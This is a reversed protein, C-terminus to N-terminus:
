FKNMNSIFVLNNRGVENCDKSVMTSTFRYEGLVLDDDDDIQCMDDDFNVPKWMSHQDPYISSCRTGILNGTNRLGNCSRKTGLNM